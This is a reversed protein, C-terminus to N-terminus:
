RVMLVIQIHTIKRKTRHMKFRRPRYFTYGEHASAHIVMKGTDLGKFEANSEASNLLKLIEFATKTYHKKGIPATEAAMRLLLDKGKDVPMGSVAKCVQKSNKASIPLSGGYAKASKKEDFKMSYPM